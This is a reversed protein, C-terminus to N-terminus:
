PNQGSQIKTFGVNKIDTDLIVMGMDNDAREFNGQENLYWYEKLYIQPPDPFSTAHGFVGHIKSGDKFEVDIWLWDDKDRCQKFFYDWPSNELSSGNSLKSMAYNALLIWVYCILCPLILLVAIGLGTIQYFNLTNNELIYIVPLGCISYNLCSLFVANMIEESIEGKKRAYFVEYTKLAVIGPIVFFIFLALKNQDLLDM